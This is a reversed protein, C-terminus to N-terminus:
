PTLMCINHYISRILSDTNLQSSFVVCGQNVYKSIAAMYEVDKLVLGNSMIKSSNPIHSNRYLVLNLQRYRGCHYLKMLVTHSHLVSSYTNKLKSRFDVKYFARRFMKFIFIVTLVSVKRYLELWKKWITWVCFLLLFINSKKWHIM